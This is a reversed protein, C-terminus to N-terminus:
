RPQNTLGQTRNTVVAATTITVQRRCNAELAQVAIAGSATFSASIAVRPRQSKVVADKGPQATMAPRRWVEAAAYPDRIASRKDPVVTTPPRSLRRMNPTTGACAPVWVGHRNNTRSITMAPRRWIDAAAYPDRREGPRRRPNQRPCAFDIERRQKGSSQEM